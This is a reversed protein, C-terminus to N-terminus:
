IPKRFRRWVRAAGLLLTGFVFLTESFPEPVPTILFAHDKNGLEGVGVIEGSNNISFAQTLTWDPADILLDTLDHMQEDSFLFARADRGASARAEGVILGLDNIGHALTFPLGNLDGLLTAAAGDWMTARLDNVSAGYSFGAIQNAENVDNATGRLMGGPLPLLEITLGSWKAPLGESEGVILGADNIGLGRSGGDFIHSGLDHM